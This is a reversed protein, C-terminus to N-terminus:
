YDPNQILIKNSKDIETQPLPWKYFKDEFKYDVIGDKVKNLVDGAIHWRMLDYHRLGEFALEIRREQRIRKRMDDASLGIPIAPMDVRARLDNLAQYVSADPGVVENQAEAYMLLVEGLRLIVADQQSLTSFGFPLNVPDLFKKMGYNTPRPNSPKHVKGAGFDVSDVFVTKTLRPDRNEFPKTKNALPSQDFPLGDICEFADIFNQLPSVAVWDGFYMDWPATNNPALFNISFIIEQNNKQTADRFIDEFNASLQYDQMVANALDRVETLIAKDPQGNNGFAAFLLVRAKFAKASSAVAHGGNSYYPKTSLHQISYDLDSLIQKLIEPAPVKPQFQKELDLPELVLPVEGYNRYLEFYYMARLFQVEGKLNALESESIDTGTYAALNKLFLNIRTIGRYSKQYIASQFGGTTPNLNGGVIDKVSGSNFQGYGNDTLCDRFSLGYSFEEEQFSAYVAALSKEFDNKSKYFNTTSIQDLPNLDLKSNCSALLLASAVLTTILKTKM